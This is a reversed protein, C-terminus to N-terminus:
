VSKELSLEAESKRLYVPGEYEVLGVEGAVFKSGGLKLLSLVSSHGQPIFLHVEQVPREMRLCEVFYEADPGLALVAEERDICNLIEELGADFPGSQLIGGRYMSAYFRNKKADIVPVVVGKWSRYPLAIAELTPIAYVPCGHALELAKLAAFALRLGTFSGPGGCLVTFDLEDPGMECQQMVCQISSLLKESQRMGIELSLVATKENNCAAFSICSSVSDIALAKM